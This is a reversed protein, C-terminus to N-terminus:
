ERHVPFQYVDRHQRMELVCTYHGDSVYLFRVEQIEQEHEFLLDAIQSMLDHQDLSLDPMM